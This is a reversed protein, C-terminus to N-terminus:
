SPSSPFMRVLVVAAVSFVSVLSLVGPRRVLVTETAPSETPPPKPAVPIKACRRALVRLDHLAFSWWWNRAVLRSNATCHGSFRQRGSRCCRTCPGTEHLFVLDRQLAIFQFSVGSFQRLEEGRPSSTKYTRRYVNLQCVIDWM